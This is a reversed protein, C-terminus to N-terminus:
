PHSRMFEMYRNWDYRSLYHGYSRLHLGINGEHFTDGPVTMRDPHVFGTKGLLEYVPTVACMTLYESCPDAWTDEVAGGVCLYRPAVLAALFHQDFPMADEKRHGAKEAEMWESDEQHAARVAAYDESYGDAYKEFNKCFWFPFVNYIIHVTEGVKQRSVSTGCCGSDNPIVYKFRTDLAGCLLATKGLRSHGLVAANATDVCGLIELQDLVRSAAWAWMAIKGPKNGTHEGFLKAIGSEYENKDLTIDNYHVNVVAFGNDIVEELPLYNHPLPNFAIHVIVPSKTGNNPYVLNFPFSAEDKEGKVTIVFRRSVAKGAFALKGVTTDTIDDTTEKCTITLPIDPIKGYEEELIIDVIEERRRQWDAETKVPTGDNFTFLDPLNLANIKEQIM